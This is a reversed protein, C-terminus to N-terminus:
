CNRSGGTLDDRTAVLGAEDELQHLPDPAPVLREALLDQEFVLRSCSPSSLDCPSFPQGRSISRGRM